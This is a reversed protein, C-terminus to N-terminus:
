SRRWPYSDDKTNVVANEVLGLLQQQHLPVAPAARDVMRRGSFPAGLHAEWARLYALLPKAKDPQDVEHSSLFQQIHGRGGAALMHHFILSLRLKIGPYGSRTILSETWTGLSKLFEAQAVFYGFGLIRTALLDALIERLAVFTLQVLNNLVPNVDQANAPLSNGLLVQRVEAAQISSKRRLSLHHPPDHSYDIFHGLEHALLPYLLTDKTDLGAFSLIAIQKPRERAAPRHRDHGSRAIARKWIAGLIQDPRKVGLKTAPDFVSHSILGRLHWSLPVYTLNYKWQPRVLCIPRDKTTGPFYLEALRALAVQIAPPSHRPSSAWLYRICSYLEHVVRALARMRSSGAPGRLASPDTPDHLGWLQQLVYDAICLFVDRIRCAEGLYEEETIRELAQILACAQSTVAGLCPSEVLSKLQAEALPM